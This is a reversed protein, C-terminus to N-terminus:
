RARPAEAGTLHSEKTVDPSVVLLAACVVPLKSRGADGDDLLHGGQQDCTQGDASCHLGPPPVSADAVIVAHQVNTAMAIFRSMVESVAEMLPLLCLYHCCNMSKADDGDEM